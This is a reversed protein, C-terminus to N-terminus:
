GIVFIRKGLAAYTSVDNYTLQKNNQIVNVDIYKNNNIFGYPEITINNNWLKITNVKKDITSNYMAINHECISSLVNNQNSENVNKLLFMTDTTISSDYMAISQDVGLSVRSSYEAISRSGANRSDYRAIAISANYTGTTASVYAGGCTTASYVYPIDETNELVKSNHMVIAPSTICYTINRKTFMNSLSNHLIVSVGVNNASSNFGVMCADANTATSHTFVFSNYSDSDVTCNDFSIANGQANNCNNYAFGCERATSNHFAAGCYHADGKDFAFAQSYTKSNYLAVSHQTAYSDYIAVSNSAATSTYLAMTAGFSYDALDNPAALSNYLLVNAGQAYQEHRCDYLAISNAYAESDYLLTSANNGNCATNFMSIAHCTAFGMYAISLGTVGNGAAGIGIACGTVNTSSIGFGCAYVCSKNFGFAYSGNTTLATSENHCLAMVANGGHVSKNIYIGPNAVNNQESYNLSIGNCAYSNNVAIGGDLANSNQIAIGRNASHIVNNAGLVVSTNFLGEEFSRIVSDGAPNRTASACLMYSSSYYDPIDLTVTNGNLMTEFNEFKINLPGDNLKSMSYKTNDVEIASFGTLVSNNWNVASNPNVQDYIFKTKATLDVLNDNVYKDRSSLSLYVDNLLVGDAITQRSIKAVDTIYGAAKAKDWTYQDAM